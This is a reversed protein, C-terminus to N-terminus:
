ALLPNLRVLQAVRDNYESRKNKYLSNAPGNAPDDTNPTDLLDQVGVLVQKVTVAPVWGQGENIINLCVRGNSYM